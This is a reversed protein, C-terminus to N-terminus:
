GRARAPVFRHLSPTRRKPKHGFKKLFVEGHKERIQIRSLGCRVVWLYFVRGETITPHIHFMNRRFKTWLRAYAQEDRFSPGSPGFPTFM